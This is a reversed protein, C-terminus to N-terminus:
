VTQMKNTQWSFLKFIIFHKLAFVSKIIAEADCTYSFSPLTHLYHVSSHPM